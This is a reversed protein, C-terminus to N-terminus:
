LCNCQESIQESSLFHKIFGSTDSCCAFNHNVHSALPKPTKVQGPAKRRMQSLVFQKFILSLSHDMQQSSPLLVSFMTHLSLTGNAPQQSAACLVHYTSLTDWKSAAPFCCLSCPIYLSHGMQQSSPLLVSFMTHLSLTGNAPQQSAACLVHYTSLTDWKSAAPFCCLSCPIYLSHGMQQSSPLWPSCTTWLSLSHGM